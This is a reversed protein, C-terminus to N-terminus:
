LCIRKKISRLSHKHASFIVFVQYVEFYKVFKLYILLTNYMSVTGANYMPIIDIYM